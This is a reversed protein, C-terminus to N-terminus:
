VARGSPSALKMLKSQGIKTNFVQSFSWNVLYSVLASTSRNVSYNFFCGFLRRGLLYFYVINLLQFHETMNISKWGNTCNDRALSHQHLLTFTQPCKRNRFLLVSTSTASPLWVVFVFKSTKSVTCILIRTNIETILWSSACFKQKVILKNWAEVHKSCWTSLM